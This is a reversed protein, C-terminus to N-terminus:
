YKEHAQLKIGKNNTMYLESFFKVQHLADIDLWFSVKDNGGVECEGWYQLSQNM